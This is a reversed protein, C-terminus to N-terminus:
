FQRPAGLREGHRPSDRNLGHNKAPAHGQYSNVPVAANKIAAKISKLAFLAFHKPRVKLFQVFEKGAQVLRAQLRMGLGRTGAKLKLKFAKLGGSKKKAAPADPVQSEDIASADIEIDKASEVARVEELSKTFEPDEKELLKDIDGLPIEEAKTQDNPAQTDTM